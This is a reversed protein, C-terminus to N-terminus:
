TELRNAKDGCDHRKLGAIANAYVTEVSIDAMSDEASNRSKPKPHDISFDCPHELPGTDAHKSHSHYLGVLPIDFTAMLHTPGTDVGIYLDLNEMLAATERLSLQGAYSTAASGLVEKVHATRRQEESGGFILFHVHPHTSQLKQCLKIFNDVPWDRYARTPFSAIQLGILPRSLPPIDRGLRQTAWQREAATVVYALRFGAPAVGLASPLTLALKVAHDAQFPPPDVAKFLRANLREDAQKYAVVHNAVRLAYAILPQDFGYVFALEYRKGLLRSLHGGWPASKKTIPLTRNVFPLHNIVEIRKPHGMVDISAEPFAHAIARLAPTALLTDGIRSVNIVLISHYNM